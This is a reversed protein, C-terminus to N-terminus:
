YHNDQSYPKDYLTAENQLPLTFTVQTGYEKDSNICLEQNYIMKLRQNINWLGIGREMPNQELLGKLKVPDIGVGNDTITFVVEGGQKQISVSVTGGTIRAMLGHRVANEILPQLILPPMPIDLEEDIHYEVQLRNGFRIKEIYLYADILEREKALTSM